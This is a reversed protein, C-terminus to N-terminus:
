KAQKLQKRAYQISRPIERAMEDGDRLDDIASDAARGAGHGDKIDLFNDYALSYDNTVTAFVGAITRMADRYDAVALLPPVTEALLSATAERCTVMVERLDRSTLLTSRRAHKELGACDQYIGQLRGVWKQFQRPATTEEARTAVPIVPGGTITLTGDQVAVKGGLNRVERGLYELDSETAQQDSLPIQLTISPDCALALHSDRAIEAAVQGINAAHVGDATLWVGTKGHILRPTPTVIPAPTPMSHAPAPSTNDSIATLVVATALLGLAIFWAPHIKGKMTVPEPTAAIPDPVPIAIAGCHKCFKFSDPIPIGCQKCDANM